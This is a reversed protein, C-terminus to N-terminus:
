SDFGRGVPKYRLAEVLQAEEYGKNWLPNALILETEASSLRFGVAMIDALRDKDESRLSQFTEAPRGFSFFLFLSAQALSRVIESPTTERCNSNSHRSGISFVAKRKFIPTM